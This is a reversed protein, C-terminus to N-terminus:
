VLDCQEDKVFQREYIYNLTKKAAELKATDVMLQRLLKHQAAREKDSTKCSKNESKTCEGILGCINKHIKDYENIMYSICHQIESFQEYSLYAPDNSPLSAQHTM